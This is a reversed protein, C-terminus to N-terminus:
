VLHTVRCMDSLAPGRPGTSIGARGHGAARERPLGRLVGQRGGAIARLGLVLADAPEQQQGGGGGPRAPDVPLPLGAGPPHRPAAARHYHRWIQIELLGVQM